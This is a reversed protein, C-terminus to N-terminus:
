TKPPAFRFVYPRENFYEGDQNIDLMGNAVVSNWYRSKEVSQWGCECQRLGVDMWLVCPSCCVLPSLRCLDVCRVSWESGCMCQPLNSNTQISRELKSNSGTSDNPWWQCTSNNGMILMIVAQEKCQRISRSRVIHCWFLLSLCPFPCLWCNMVSVPIFELRWRVSEKWVSSSSLDFKRKLGAPHISRCLILFAWVLVLGAVAVGYFVFRVELDASVYARSSKSKWLKKGMNPRNKIKGM